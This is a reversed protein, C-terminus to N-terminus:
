DHARETVSLTLGKKQQAGRSWVDNDKYWSLRSTDMRDAHVELLSCRTMETLGAGAM